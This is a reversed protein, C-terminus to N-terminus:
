GKSWNKHLIAALILLLALLRVVYVWQPFVPYEITQVIRSGSDLIFFAAFGLFLPDKTNKWFRLFFAGAILLAMSVFGLLFLDAKM